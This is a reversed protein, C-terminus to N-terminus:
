EAGTYENIRGEKYELLIHALLREFAQASSRAQPVIIVRSPSAIWVEFSSGDLFDAVSAHYYPNGHFVAKTANQYQQITEGFRRIESVDSFVDDAYFIELPFGPKYNRERIGRRSLLRLREASYGALPALLYSVIESHYFDYFLEGRKYLRGSAVYKFRESRGVQQQIIFKLSTFWLNREEANEFIESISLDTWLRETDFNRNGRKGKMTVDAIRVRFTPYFQKEFSTFADQIEAQRFFVPMAEPYLEKVLRRIMQYWFRSFSVSLLRYINSEISPIIIFCGTKQLEDDGNLADLRFVSALPNVLDLKHFWGRFKALITTELDGDHYILFQRVAVHLPLKQQMSLFADIADTSTTTSAFNNFIDIAQRGRFQNRQM